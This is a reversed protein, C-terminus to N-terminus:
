VQVLLGSRVRDRPDPSTHRRFGRRDRWSAWSSTRSLALDPRTDRLRGTIRCYDDATYRRNMGRLIADSGSQVPLHLFPMLQPVARHAAVLDDDIDSPHSTTYRIRLLGPLSPWRAFLGAWGGSTDMLQWAM